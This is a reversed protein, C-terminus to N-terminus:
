IMYQGDNVSPAAIEEPEGLRSVPILPLFPQGYEYNNRGRAGGADTPRHPGEGANVKRFMETNVDPNSSRVDAKTWHGGSMTRRSRRSSSSCTGSARRSPPSRRRTCTCRISTGDM